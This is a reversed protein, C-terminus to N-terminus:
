DCSPAASSSESARLRRHTARRRDPPRLDRTAASEEVRIAAARRHTARPPPGAAALRSDRRLSKPRSHLARALPALSRRWRSVARPPPGARAAREPQPARRPSPPLGQSPSSRPILGPSDASRRPSSATSCPLAPTAPASSLRAHTADFAPQAEPRHSTTAFAASSYALGLGLGRVHIPDRARGRTARACLLTLLTWLGHGRSAFLM